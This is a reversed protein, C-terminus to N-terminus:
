SSENEAATAPELLVVVQAAIAEGRGIADLGENTGAKVNVPADLLAELAARIAAKHPYLKPREAHIMCDANSVRYGAACVRKLAEEVFLRSGVGKWRDDSPPFHDGIDGAGIAGLLADTLAHLLVDGDSHAVASMETSVVVGGLVLEGGPQLKHIDHGLGIRHPM